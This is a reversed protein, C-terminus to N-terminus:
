RYIDALYFSAEKKVLASFLLLKTIDQISGIFMVLAQILIISDNKNLQGFICTLGVRTNIVSTCAHTLAHPSTLNPNTSTHRRILQQAGGLGGM